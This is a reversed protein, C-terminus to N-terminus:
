KCERDADYITSPHSYYETKAHETSFNNVMGLECMDTQIAYHIQCGAILMNGISVYWNTANRNTSIGLTESDNLIAKVTGYVARYSMGNPALFWNDCTILYRKGIETNM